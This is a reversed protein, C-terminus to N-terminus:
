EHMNLCSTRKHFQSAWHCGPMQDAQHPQFLHLRIRIRIRTASQLFKCDFFPYMRSSINCQIYLVMDPMIADCLLVGRVMSLKLTWSSYEPASRKSQLWALQRGQDLHWLCLHGHRAHVTLKCLEDLYQCSIVAAKQMAEHFCRARQREPQINWVCLPANARMRSDVKTYRYVYKSIRLDWVVSCNHASWQATGMRQQFGLLEADERSM